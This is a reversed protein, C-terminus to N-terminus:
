SENLVDRVKAAVQQLTFPKMILNVDPDLVGNHVIANRTYGTTYLVRLSPHLKLAEDVLQRGNMKPMVVDTLLLNIDDRQRLVILAAEGSEAPIVQYGLEILMEASLRRVDVEDEVLLITESGAIPTSTVIPRTSVAVEESIARPLYIKVSTGHGIESCVKVHGGTQKVFGHVQSLGLGSGQGTLKTTYFPDFARSIVDPSMGTGTDTVAILVYQGTSLEHSRSYTDDLWTNATEITLKGGEKMADRANVALNVIANELQLADTATPWIGGALVTEIEISEPIARRLLESMNSILKNCDVIQIELPQQRSFALLRRTLAAARDAGAIAADILSDFDQKGQVKRRKILHLSGLVIALMNNFDHAIGGALQGVAELKQMQRVQTESKERRVIEARLGEVVKEENLALRLGFFGLLLLALTAPIAFLLHSGFDRKWEEVIVDHDISATVYVPYGPIKHYGVLRLVNDFVSATDFFGKEPASKIPEVLGTALPLEPLHEADGPFRALVAGDDRILSVGNVGSRAIHRYFDQFYRPEVSIATVGNFQGGANRRPDSLQFFIVNQARGRLIGSVYSSDAPLTQDRHVRFYERDSLDLQRPVPFVNGTVLPIGNRDLVWIDQVQSLRNTLIKLRQHLEEERSRIQESSLDFLIEDVQQAALLHTEFVKIAHERIVEVTRDLRERADAMGQKYTSIALWSFFSVPLLVSLVVLAILVRAASIGRPKLATEM